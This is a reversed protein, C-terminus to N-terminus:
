IEKQNRTSLIPYSFVFFFLSILYDQSMLSVTLVTSVMLVDFRSRSVKIFCLYHNLIILFGGVGFMALAKTITSFGSGMNIFYEASAIKNVESPYQGIGVGFLLNDKFIKGDIYISILRLATSTNVGNTKELYNQYAFFACLIIALTFIFKLQSSNSRLVKVILYTLIILFGLSSFTSAVTLLLSLIELKSAKSAYLSLLLAYGSVLANIGPERYIGYNRHLFPDTDRINWLLLTEYVQGSDSTVQFCLMRMTPFANFLAYMLLSVFAIRAVIQIFDEITLYKMKSVLYLSILLLFIVKANAAMDKNESVLLTQILLFIIIFLNALM